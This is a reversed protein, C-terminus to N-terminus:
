NACLISTSRRWQSSRPRSGLSISTVAIYRSMAGPALMALVILSLLGKDPDTWAGTLALGEMALRTGDVERALTEFNQLRYFQGPQFKKAALPARPLEVALTYTMLADGVQPVWYTSGALYAGRAEILGPSQSFARAYESGPQLRRLAVLAPLARKEFAGVLEPERHHEGAFSVEEM